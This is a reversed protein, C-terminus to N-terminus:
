RSRGCACACRDRRRSWRRGPRRGARARADVLGIAEEVIQEGDLGRHEPDRDRLDGLDLARQRRRMTVAPASSIPTRWVGPCVGPLTVNVTLRRVARRTKEPSVSKRRPMPRVSRQPPSEPRDQAREPALDEREVVVRDDDGAVAGSSSRRPACSSGTGGSLRRRSLGERGPHPRGRCRSARRSRSGGTRAGSGTPPRVRSREAAAAADGRDEQVQCGPRTTAADRTASNVVQSIRM